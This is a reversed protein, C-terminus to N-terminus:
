RADVTLCHDENFLYLTDFCVCTLRLGNNLSAALLNPFKISCLLIHLVGDLRQRVQVLENNPYFLLSIEADILLVFLSSVQDSLCGGEKAKEELWAAIWLQLVLGIPKLKSFNLLLVWLVLLIERINFLKPAELFLPVVEAVLQPNLYKLIKSVQLFPDFNILHQMVGANGYVGHSLICNIIHLHPKGVEHQPCVLFYKLWSLWIWFKFIRSPPEWPQLSGQFVIVFLVHLDEGTVPVHLLHNRFLEAPLGFQM